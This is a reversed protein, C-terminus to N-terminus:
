KIAELYLRAVEKAAWYDAINQEVCQMHACQGHMSASRAEYSVGCSCYMSEQGATTIRNLFFSGQTDANYIRWSNPGDSIAELQDTMQKDTM